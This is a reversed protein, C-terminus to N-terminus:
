HNPNSTFPEQYLTQLHRNLTYSIPCLPKPHLTLRRPLVPWPGSVAGAGAPHVCVTCERGCGGGAGARRLMAPNFLRGRGATAIARGNRQGGGGGRAEQAGGARRACAAAPLVAARLVHSM